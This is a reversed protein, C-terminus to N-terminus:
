LNVKIGVIWHRKKNLAYAYAYSTDFTYGNPNDSIDNVKKDFPDHARLIVYDPLTFNLINKVGFYVSSNQNKFNKTILLNQISYWPSYAPRFDNEQLPLKMPSYINGTYDVSLDWKQFQYSVSWTSSFRETM